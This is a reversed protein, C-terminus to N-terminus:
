NKGLVAPGICIPAEPLGIIQRGKFRYEKFKKPMVCPHLINKLALAWIAFSKQLTEKAHSIGSNAGVM